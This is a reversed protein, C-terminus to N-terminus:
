AVRVILVPEPNLNSCPFQKDWLQKYKDITDGLQMNYGLIIEQTNFMDLRTFHIPSLYEEVFLNLDEVEDLNKLHTHSELFDRAEKYKQFKIGFMAVPHYSYSM